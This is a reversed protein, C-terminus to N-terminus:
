GGRNESNLLRGVLGVGRRPDEARVAFPLIITHLQAHEALWELTEAQEATHHVDVAFQVVGGVASEVAVPRRGRRLVVDVEAGLPIHRTHM